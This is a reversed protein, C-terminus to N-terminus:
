FPIEDGLTPSAEEKKGGDGLFEVHNAIIETKYKKVGDKEYSTTSLEGEVFVQRGKTLYKGVLEATKRFAVLNHFEAKEQKEGSDDKWTKSTAISFKTVAIGNADKVEPDRTLRGLLIVKNIGSM